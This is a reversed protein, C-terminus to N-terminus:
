KEFSSIVFMKGKFQHNIKENKLMCYYIFKNHLIYKLCSQKKLNNKENSSIM